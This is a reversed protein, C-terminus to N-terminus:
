RGRMAFLYRSDQSLGMSLIYPPTALRTVVNGAPLDVVIVEGTASDSTFLRTHGEVAEAKRAVPGHALAVPVVLLGTLCGAAM